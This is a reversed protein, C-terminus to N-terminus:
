NEMRKLEKRVIKDSIFGLIIYSIAVASFIGVIGFLKNFILTLPIVLFVLQSYGLISSLQPKKLINLTSTVCSFISQHAYSLPSIRLYWIIIQSIEQNHTFLHALVPASIFLIVYCITYVIYSYRHLLNYAENVRKYNKAGYNQGVIATTTNGFAIAIATIFSEIKTGVGYGAVAMQSHHALLMTVIATILPSVIKALANPVGIKLIERLSNYGTKKVLLKVNFADYRKQLLIIYLPAMIIRSIVTAIAAGMLGMAPFGLFGFILIPDLIGNILASAILLNAPTKTDGLGRFMQGGVMSIFLFVSGIYWPIMYQKILDILEDTAGLFHFVPDITLPGIIAIVVSLALIIAYVTTIIHQMKEHNKEGVSKSILSAIAIGLGITILNVVMVISFTYSIATLEKAGIMSVFYTDVINFISLGLMGIYGPVSLKRILGSIDDTLLPNKM